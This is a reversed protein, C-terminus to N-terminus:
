LNLVMGDFAPVINNPLYKKVSGYDIDSHLNTLITKANIQQSIEFAQEFNFHSSHSKFKLCDIILYKLGKLKNYDKLSIGNTDSIYALKDIIYATSNIQGHSVYFSKIKVKDKKKLTFFKRKNYKREINTYLGARWSFM